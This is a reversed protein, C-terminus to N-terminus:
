SSYMLSKLDIIEYKLLDNPSEDLFSIQFIKKDAQSALSSDEPFRELMPFLAARGIIARRTSPHPALGWMNQYTMVMNAHDAANPNPHKGTYLIVHGGIYIITMFPRGNEMLYNLRKDVSLHSVDVMKGAHMQESSHRPLWLGFPTLLSKLEASCDNYFYLNGWGYPRGILTSMVDAFHHPTAALPMIIAHGPEITARKIAANQNADQVPILVAGSNSNDDAPFVSGVYASFHFKGNEDMISTQTHTIAVLQKKAAIQWHTIFTNDARAIGTSKVWAICDPTIIFLWAHDESEGLIYVPTGAWLASMQLNDFPYGQGALKHSYFSPDETPLSRLALNDIAIGRRTYQYSFNDFQSININASIANIWELTHPHFNEGYPIEDEAKNQNTFDRIINLETQKLSDSASRHLIKNVFDPSWPSASGYLHNYFTDFRKQQIDASFLPKDYNPDSPNVWTAITQDYNALPFLSIKDPEQDARCASTALTMVLIFTVSFLQGITINQSKM